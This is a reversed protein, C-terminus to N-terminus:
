FLEVQGRITELLPKLKKPYTRFYFGKLAAVTPKGDLQESLRTMTANIGFEQDGSPDKLTYKGKNMLELFISHFPAFDGSKVKEEEKLYDEMAKESKALNVNESQVPESKKPKVHVPESKKRVPKSQVPKSKAHVPENLEHVPKPKTVSKAIRKTYGVLSSATTGTKEWASSLFGSSKNYLMKRGEGSEAKTESEKILMKLLKLLSFLALELVSGKANGVLKKTKVETKFEHAKEQDLWRLSTIKDKVKKNQLGIKREIKSIDSKLKEINSVRNDVKNQLGKHGFQNQYKEMGQRAVWTTKQSIEEKMELVLLKKDTKLETVVKKLSLVNPDNLSDLPIYKSDKSKFKGQNNKTFKNVEFHSMAAMVVVLSLVNILLFVLFHGLDREKYSKDDDKAKFNFKVRWDAAILTLYMLIVATWSAFVAIPSRGDHLASKELINSHWLYLDHTTINEFVLDFLHDIYPKVIAMGVLIILAIGLKLSNRLIWSMIFNSNFRNKGLLYGGIYGQTEVFTGVLSIGTEIDAKSKAM